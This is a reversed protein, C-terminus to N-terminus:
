GSRQTIALRYLTSVLRYLTYPINILTMFIVLELSKHFIYTPGLPSVVAQMFSTPVILVSYIANCAVVWGGKGGRVCSILSIVAIIVSLAFLPQQVHRWETFSRTFLMTTGRVIVLGHFVLALLSYWHPWRRPLPPNTPVNYSM